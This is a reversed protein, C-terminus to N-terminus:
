RHRSPLLLPLIEELRNILEEYNIEIYTLQM